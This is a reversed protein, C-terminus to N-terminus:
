PRLVNQLMEWRRDIEEQLTRGKVTVARYLTCPSVFLRQAIDIVSMEEGNLRYKHRYPKNWPHTVAEEVSMGVKTLRRQMTQKNVDALDALQEVTMQRGRYTYKIRRDESNM